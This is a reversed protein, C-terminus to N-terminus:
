ILPGDWFWQRAERRGEIHNADIDRLTREDVNAVHCRQHSLEHRQADRHELKGPPMATRDGTAVMDTLHTTNM